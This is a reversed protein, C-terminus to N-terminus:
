NFYQCLKQGLREALRDVVHSSVKKLEVDRQVGDTQQHMLVLEKDAFTYSNVAIKKVLRHNEEVRAEAEGTVKESFLSKSIALRNVGLDIRYLYGDNAVTTDDSVKSGVGCESLKGHVAQALYNQIREITQGTSVPVYAEENKYHLQTANIANRLAQVFAPDMSKGFSLSVEGGPILLVHSELTESIPQEAELSPLIEKVAEALSNAALVESVPTNEPASDIVLSDPSLALIAEDEEAQANIAFWCVGIVILLARLRGKM